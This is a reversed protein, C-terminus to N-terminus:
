MNNTFSEVNLYKFEKDRSSYTITSRSQFIHKTKMSVTPKEEKKELELSNYFIYALKPKVMPGM